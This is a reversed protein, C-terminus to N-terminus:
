CFQFFLVLLLTILVPVKVYKFGFLKYLANCVALVIVLPYIMKIVPMSFKLIPGLGFSAPILTAALIGLLVQAYPARKKLLDNSVYDTVVAALAVTTTFCALFVTFGILAAGYTGLVRFSVASFLQGENLHSLGQGHFAGLYGMGIYVLSLLTAAGIGAMGAVAIRQNISMPEQRDAQLLKVVISGFFITGLLDLTGYGYEAGVKFLDWGSFQSVAAPLGSFLGSVIIILLSTIKLPSLINGILALLKRPRYTALFVLSLFGLAFLGVPMAPLFPQLMEYSLTVIRPMVILPGLAMMCLFLLLSGPIDGLRKFFKNYDGDFGIITLLGLLPLLVGSLIFGALGWATHDGSMMGVQLPFMLNGAGFLMAFIVLSVQLIRGIPVSRAHM